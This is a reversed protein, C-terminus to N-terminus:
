FVRQYKKPDGAISVKSDKEAQELLLAKMQPGVRVRRHFDLDKLAIHPNWMELKEGVSRNM